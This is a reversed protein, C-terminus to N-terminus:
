RQLRDIESSILTYWIDRERQSSAMFIQKNFFYYRGKDAVSQYLQSVAVSGRSFKQNPTIESLQCMTTDDQYTDQRNNYENRTRNSRGYQITFSRMYREEYNRIGSSYLKYINQKKNKNICTVQGDPLLDKYPSNGRYIYCSDLPIVRYFKYTINRNKHLKNDTWEIKYILITGPILLVFYKGYQHYLGTKQYLIGHNLLVNFTSKTQTMEFPSTRWCEENEFTNGVDRSTFQRYSTNKAVMIKKKSYNDQLNQIVRIQNFKVIHRLETVWHEAQKESPLLINIVSNYSTTLVILSPTIKLIKNDTYCQSRLKKTIKRYYKENNSRLNPKVLEISTINKLDICNSSSLVLRIKRKFEVFYSYDNKIFESITCNNNLWPIHNKKDLSITDINEIKLPNENSINNKLIPQHKLLSPVVARHPVISFLLSNIIVLYREEYSCEFPDIVNTLKRESSLFGYGETCTSQKVFNGELSATQLADSTFGKTPKLFFTSGEKLEGLNINLYKINTFHCSNTKFEDNQLFLGEHYSTLNFPQKNVRTAELLLVNIFMRLPSSCETYGNECIQFRNVFNRSQSLYKLCECIVRNYRILLSLKSECLSITHPGRGYSPEINVSLFNYLEQLQFSSSGRIFYLITRNKMRKHPDGRMVREICITDNILRLSKIEKNVNIFFNHVRYFYYKKKNESIDSLKQGKKCSLSLVLNKNHSNSYVQIFYEKWKMTSMLHQIQSSFKRPPETINETKEVFLVIVKKTLLNELKNDFINRNFTKPHNKQTANRVEAECELNDYSLIDHEETLNRGEASSMPIPPQISFQNQVDSNESIINQLAIQQHTSFKVNRWYSKKPGDINRVHFLITKNPKHKQTKPLDLIWNKNSVRKLSPKKLQQNRYKESCKGDRTFTPMSNKRLNEYEEWNIKLDLDGLKLNRFSDNVCQMSLKENFINKLSLETALEIGYFCMEENRISRLIYSNRRINFLHRFSNKPSRKDFINLDDELHGIFQTNLIKSLDSVSINQLAESLFSKNPVIVIENITYADCRKSLYENYKKEDAIIKLVKREQLTTMQDPEKNPRKNYNNNYVDNVTSIKKNILLRLESYFFIQSM